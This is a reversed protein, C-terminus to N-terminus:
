LWLFYIGAIATLAAHLSTLYRAMRGNRLASIWHDYRIRWSELTPLWQQHTHRIELADADMCAIIRVVRLAADKHPLVLELAHHHVGTDPQLLEDVGHCRGAVSTFTDPYGDLLYPTM